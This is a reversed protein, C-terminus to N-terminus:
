RNLQNDLDQLTWPRYYGFQDGVIILRVDYGSITMDYAALDYYRTSSM